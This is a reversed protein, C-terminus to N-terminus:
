IYIRRWAVAMQPSPCSSKYAQPHESVVYADTQPRHLYQAALEVSSPRRTGSELIDDFPEKGSRPGVTKITVVVVSTMAVTKTSPLSTERM